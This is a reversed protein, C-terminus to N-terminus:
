GALEGRYDSSMGEHSNSTFGPVLELARTLPRDVASRMVLDAHAVSSVDVYPNPIAICRLGAAQASRVGHPTDEIAIAAAASIGLRRLCLQYITRSPKPLDVEDGCALVEFKDLVDVRGLHEVLWARPSSSAVALRLGLDSAEALWERIGANLGLDANLTKRLTLRRKNSIEANFRPGVANALKTFREETIDGGHNAFFSDPDIELGWAAWESAWSQLLTTETDMLVGDFDFIVAQLPDGHM